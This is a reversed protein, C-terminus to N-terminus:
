TELNALPSLSKEEYWGLVQSNHATVIIQASTSTQPGIERAELIRSAPLHPSADLCGSGRIEPLNIIGPSLPCARYTEKDALIIRRIPKSQSTLELDRRSKCFKEPRTRHQTLM